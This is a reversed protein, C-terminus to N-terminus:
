TLFVKISPIKHSTTPSYSLHYPPSCKYNALKGLAEAVDLQEPMAQGSGCEPYMFDPLGKRRIGIEFPYNTKRHRPLWVNLLRQVNEAM